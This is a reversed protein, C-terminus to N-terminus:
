LPSLLLGGTVSAVQSSTPTPLSSDNMAVSMKLLLLVETQVGLPALIVSPNISRAPLAVCATHSWAVTVPLPAVGVPVTVNVSYLSPAHPPVPVLKPAN